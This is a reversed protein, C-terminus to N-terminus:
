SSSALRSCSHQLDKPSRYKELEQYTAFIGEGSETFQGTFYTMGDKGYRAVIADKDFEQRSVGNASDDLSLEAVNKEQVDNLMVQKVIAFGLMSWHFACVALM